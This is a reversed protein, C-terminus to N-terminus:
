PTPPVESETTEVLKRMREKVATRYGDNGRWIELFKEYAVTAKHVNGDQEFAMGLNNYGRAYTPDIQVSSQLERIADGTRGQQLYIAGLNGHIDATGSGDAVLRQFAKAAAELRGSQLYAEGMRARAYGYTPLLALARKFSEIARDWEKRTGYVLGLDYHIQAINPNAAMAKSYAEEAEDLEGARRHSEGLHGFVLPNFGGLSGASAFAEQALTWRGERLHNRGSYFALDFRIHQWNLYCAAACLLMAFVPIALVSRGRVQVPRRSLAGLIALHIWFLTSPTPSEKPFSFVSHGLLSCLGLLSGLAIMRVRDDGQRIVRVATFLAAALAWMYIGFGVLSLESAIWLFDNHPRLPASVQTITAGLDYHPYVVSWNSLGVGLVPHDSIMNLTRTWMETRNRSGGETVTSVLAGFPTSKHEDFRNVTARSIQDTQTALYVLGALCLVIAWRVPRSSVADKLLSRLTGRVEPLVVWMLIALAGGGALGVWAGRTRTYFLFLLMASTAFVWLVKRRMSPDLLFALIAFWVNGILYSAALNRFVFTGSPQGVSPIHGFGLGLFQGVGVLSVLFGGLAAFGSLTVVHAKQLHGSVCMFLGILVLIQTVDVLGLFGNTSWTLSLLNVLGYAMAPILLRNSFVQAEKLWNVIWIGSLIAVFTYLVMRKPLLSSAGLGDHFVLPLILLLGSAALAVRWSRM